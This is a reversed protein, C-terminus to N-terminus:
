CKASSSRAVRRAPIATVVITARAVQAARAANSDRAPHAAVTQVVIQAATQAAAIPAAAVATQVVVEGAIEDAVAAASHASSVRALTVASVPPIVRSIKVLLLPAASERPGRKVPFCFSM